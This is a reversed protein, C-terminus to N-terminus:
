QEDSLCCMKHLVEVVAQVVLSRNAEADSESNEFFLSAALLGSQAVAAGFSSVYGKFPAPFRDQEDVIQVQRLAEHAAKIWQETMRM